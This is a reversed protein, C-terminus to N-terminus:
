AWAALGLPDLALPHHDPQRLDEGCQAGPKYRTDSNTLLQHPASNPQSIMTGKLQGEVKKVQSFGARNQRAKGGNVLAQLVEQIARPM